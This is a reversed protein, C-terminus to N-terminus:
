TENVQEMKLLFSLSLVLNVDDTELYFKRSELYLRADSNPYLTMIGICHELKTTTPMKLHFKSM